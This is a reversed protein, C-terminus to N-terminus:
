IDIAARAKLSWFHKDIEERVDIYQECYTAPTSLFRKFLLLFFISIIFVWLVLFIKGRVLLIHKHLPLNIQYYLHQACTRNQGFFIFTLSILDDEGAAPSLSSFLRFTRFFFLFLFFLLSFPLLFSIYKQFKPTPRRPDCTQRLEFPSLGDAM